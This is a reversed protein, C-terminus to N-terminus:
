NRSLILANEEFKLPCGEKWITATDHPRLQDHHRRGLYRVQHQPMGPSLHGLGLGAVGQAFWPHTKRDHKWDRTRHFFKSWPAEILVWFIDSQVFAVNPSAAVQTLPIMPHKWCITFHCLRLPEFGPGTQSLLFYAVIYRVWTAVRM